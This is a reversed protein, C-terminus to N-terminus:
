PSQIPNPNREEKVGPFTVRIEDRPQLEGKQNPSVRAGKLIATSVIHWGCMLSAGIMTILPKELLTVSGVM